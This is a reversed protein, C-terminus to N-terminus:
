AGTPIWMAVLASWRWAYGGIMALTTQSFPIGSKPYVQVIQQSRPDYVVVTLNNTAFQLFEDNVIQLQGDAPTAPMTFTWPASTTNAYLLPSDGPQAAYTTSKRLPIYSAAGAPGPPGPDGPDGKPGQALNKGRANVAVNPGSPQQVAM